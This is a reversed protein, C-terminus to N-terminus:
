VLKEKAMKKMAQFNIHDLREHWRRAEAEEKTLLCRKVLLKVLIMYLQSTTRKVRALLKGEPERIM